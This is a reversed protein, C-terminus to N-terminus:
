AVSFRRGEVEKVFKEDMEPNASKFGKSDFRKQVFPTYRVVSDGVSLEDVKKRELEKKLEAERRELEEQLEKMMAKYEKYEAVRKELEKKTM